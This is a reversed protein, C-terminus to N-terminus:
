YDNLFDNFPKLAKSARIILDFFDRDVVEKDSAIRSLLFSKMKLLEINPHNNRFGRPASSLREGELDGFILRLEQDYIIKIFDNGREDIKKRIATLWPMPPLYAGGAIMSKNDPELHIYYGAFRNTNKKGGRVIYAGFNSKYITKDHSFRIDRYIRFISNKAELGKLIPDFKVIEDIVAQIFSEFEKKAAEYEAKNSIFWERQNHKGLTSLFDLTSQHICNM